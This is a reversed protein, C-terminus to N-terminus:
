GISRSRVRVVACVCVCVRACARVSRSVLVQCDQLFTPPDHIVPRPPPAVVPQDTLDLRVMEAVPFAMPLMDREADTLQWWGGTTEDYNDDDDGVGHTSDVHPAHEAHPEEAAAAVDALSSLREKGKDPPPRVRKTSKRTATNEQDGRAAAIQRRLKTRPLGWMRQLRNYAKPDMVM